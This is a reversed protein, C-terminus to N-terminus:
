GRPRPRPQGHVGPRVVPMLMVLENVQRGIGEEGIGYYEGADWRRLFEETSIGLLYQVKRDFWGIAEEHTLSDPHRQESGEHHDLDAHATSARRVM